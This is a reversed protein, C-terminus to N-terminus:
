ECMNTERTPLWLKAGDLNTLMNGQHAVAIVVVNVVVVVGAGTRGVAFVSM